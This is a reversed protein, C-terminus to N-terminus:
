DRHAGVDSSRFCHDKDPVKESPTPCAFMTSLRGAVQTNSIPFFGVGHEVDALALVLAEYREVCGGSRAPHKQRKHGFRAFPSTRLHFVRTVGRTVGFFEPGIAAVPPDAAKSQLRAM